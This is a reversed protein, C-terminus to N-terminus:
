MLRVVLFRLGNEDPQKSYAFRISLLDFVFRKLLALQDNSTLNNFVPIQHCFEISKVSYIQAYKETLYQTHDQDMCTFRTVVVQAAREDPFVQLAQHAASILELEYSSLEILSKQKKKNKYPIKATSLLYQALESKDTQTGWKRLLSIELYLEIRQQIRAETSSSSPVLTQICNSSSTSNSSTITSEVSDPDPSLECDTVITSSDIETSSSPSSSSSPPSNIRNNRRM